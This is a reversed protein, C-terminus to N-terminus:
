LRDTKCVRESQAHGYREAYSREKKCLINIKCSKEKITLSDLLEKLEKKTM